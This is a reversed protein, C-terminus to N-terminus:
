GALVERTHMPFCLTVLLGLVEKGVMGAAAVRLARSPGASRWVGVGFAYLLLDYLVMLAAVPRRSPAGIAYLESITQSVGSYGPYLLSGVANMAVYLLSSGIGCLLLLKRSPLRSSPEIPDPPARLAVAM